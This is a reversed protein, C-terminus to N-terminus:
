LILIDDKSPRGTFMMAFYQPRRKAAEQYVERRDKSHFLVKGRLVANSEDLEPDGVLVWESEFTQNIEEATMITEHAM